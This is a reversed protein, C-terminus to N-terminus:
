LLAMLADVEGPATSWDTVFRVPTRESGRPGWLEFSVEERLKDIARNPLLFFQQNTPSNIYLEYGKATFADKLRLAQTVAHRGLQLYLDDTFLTLFQVGLLRGKAMLAGHQKILSFFRPLLKPNKVVVAEGFLAGTKTGGIYFVDSLAAIDPLTLTCYPSGLAYSLRAGDIYLPIQAARCVASVAELEERSYLTGLESPFTLYVMGPAVMHPYTDDAYFHRLYEEIQRATIKGEAAPLTIVKHGSAEIAGAEHVAIHATDAAIVGQCKGLLGDIVVANTQTGGVLLYVRGDSLGCARLIAAQAAQTYSDLGYGVSQEANTECLAKMVQPCAGRQYDTDFHLM